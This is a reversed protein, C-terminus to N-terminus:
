RRDRKDDPKSNLWRIPKILYYRIRKFLLLLGFVILTLGVWANPTKFNDLLAGTTRDVMADLGQGTGRIAGAAAEGLLIWLQKFGAETLEGTKDQFFEPNFSYAVIASGGLWWQWHPQIYRDFFHKSAKGGKVVAGTFDALKFGALGRNPTRGAIDALEDWQRPTPAIVKGARIATDLALSVRAMEPGVLGVALVLNEGGSEILRARTALDGVTETLQRGGNAMVLAAARDADGLHDIQRLLSPNDRLMADLSQRVAAARAADDAGPPLKRNARLEREAAERMLPSNKLAETAHDVQRLPVQPPLQTTYRILDDQWRAQAIETVFFALVGLSLTATLRRLPQM